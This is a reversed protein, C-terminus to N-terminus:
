HFRRWWHWWQWGVLDVVVRWLAAQLVAAPRAVARGAHAALVHGGFALAAVV